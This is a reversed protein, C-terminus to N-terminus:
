RANRKFIDICIKSCHVSMYQKAITITIFMIRILWKGFGEGAVGMRYLAILSCMWATMYIIGWVGTFWSDEFQKFTNEVNVGIFMAPAGCFAIIGLQKNTMSFIM